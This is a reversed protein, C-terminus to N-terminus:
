RRKTHRPSTQKKGDAKSLWRSWRKRSKERKRKGRADDTLPQPAKEAPVKGRNLLALLHFRDSIPPVLALFPSLSLSFLSFPLPQVPFLSISGIFLLPEFLEPSQRSTVRVGKLGRSRVPEDSKRRAEGPHTSGRLLELEIRHCTWDRSVRFNLPAQPCFFTKASSFKLSSFPYLQSFRAYYNGPQDFTSFKAKKLCFYSISRISRCKKFVDMVSLYIDSIHSTFKTWMYNESKNKCIKNRTQFLVKAIQLCYFKIKIEHSDL